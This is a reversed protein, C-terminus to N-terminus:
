SLLYMVHIVVTKSRSIMFVYIYIYIHLYVYVATVEMVWRMVECNGADAEMM